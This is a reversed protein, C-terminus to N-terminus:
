NKVYEGDQSKENLGGFRRDRKQFDEIAALLDERTFDPWLRNTIWLETYAIQWLLFNSIRMEGATRILLDPDPLDRTYLMRNFLDETIQEPSLEGRQVQGAIERIAQLIEFRSGYNLAINFVMGQNCRTLQLANNLENICKEPLVGYDGLINIRINNSHLEQLEKHLYEILLNMLFNIEDKPRRWNETSFAFVTLAPIKLQACCEVVKRLATMGARHGISRPMLRRRAWRGNGDMIIAIHRPLQPGATEEGSKIGKDM